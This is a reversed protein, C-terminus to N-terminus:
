QREARVFIDARTSIVELLHLGSTDSYERQRRSKQRGVIGILYPGRERGPRHLAQPSCLLSRRVRGPAFLELRSTGGPTGKPVLQDPPFKHTTYILGGAGQFWPQIRHSTTLFNWRFIVPTLSVGRFTGGGEPAVYSCTRGDPLGALYFFTQDHPPLLTHRGSRCSTAAWSLSAASFAPMFSRLSAQGLQFGGWFFKYDSRDGVGTGWNVFPGFEWSHADRVAAVPNDSATTEAQLLPM